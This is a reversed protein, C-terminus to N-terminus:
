PRKVGREARHVLLCLQSHTLENSELLAAKAVAEFYLRRAPPDLRIAALLIREICNAVYYVREAETM